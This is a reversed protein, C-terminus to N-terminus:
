RNTSVGPPQPSGPKSARAIDLNKRADAYDPRLRLAEEFQKIAEDMQGKGVYAIGLNNHAEAYGPKLKLAVQFGNIAMEIQGKGLLANALNNHAEAYDPKLRIARQYHRIAEDIRGKMALANGFNCQAGSDDPSLRVAEQFQRLAEDLRGRRGLAIGLNNHADGYNPKLRIAEQFQPIAKDMQGKSAFALGLNYYVEAYDPKLRIAEQYHGVAEDSQGKMWLAIGLNNHALAYGPQLRIVEQYQGIAEDVQGKRGLADGYARRVTQNDKTVELAHRFLTTGDKWYGIQQRTLALCLVSAAGTAVALAIMHHRWGRTLECAGWIILILVGLSPLYTYRDAMAQEGVQVLGIVPVLTGLFWLWGMLLYPYRRRLVWIVVSLSLILAGALLAQGLPWQGPHWYLVSLDVPRFLKGLYRAYALLATEVRVGLPLRTVGTMAGGHKQVVFTVVSSLAVLFFFPIKERMLRLLTNRTAHQTNSTPANQLRGLPWYDLLLMVLPWTVLMPKSMLGLALFFLSLCYLLSARFLNRTAPQADPMAPNPRRGQAYGVYAILALLGFFSSLVDKRESVWAVSEVRLPHLAFLVTVLLSRWPAGTMLQLLAFVLGANLAHLLVSTLHHGWPKVGFMQCDLMHSLWTLPHWNAAYDSRFAWRANELTLGSTVHQNDLVYMYDDYTVFDCQTAPWYIAATVLVVLVAMLWVPYHRQTSFFSAARPSTTEAQIAPQSM